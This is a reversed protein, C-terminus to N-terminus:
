CGIDSYGASAGQQITGTLFAGNFASGCFASLKFPKSEVVLTLHGVM